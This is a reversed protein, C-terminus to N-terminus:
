AGWWAAFWGSHNPSVCPTRASAGQCETPVPLGRRSLSLGLHDLHVTSTSDGLEPLVKGVVVSWSPALDPSNGLSHTFLASPAQAAAQGESGSPSECTVKRWYLRAGGRAASRRVLESPARGLILLHDGTQKLVM